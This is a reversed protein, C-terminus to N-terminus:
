VELCRVCDLTPFHPCFSIMAVFLASIFNDILSFQQLCNYVFDCVDANKSVMNESGLHLSQVLEDMKDLTRSFLFMLPSLRLNVEQEYLKM